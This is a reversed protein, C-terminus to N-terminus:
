PTAEGAGLFEILGALDRIGAGQCFRGLDEPTRLGLAHLRPALRSYLVRRGVTEYVGTLEGRSRALALGGPSMDWDAAAETEGYFLGTSEPSAAAARGPRTAPRRGGSLTPKPSASMPARPTM